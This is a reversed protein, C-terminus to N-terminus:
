NYGSLETTRYNNKFMKIFELFKQFLNTRNKRVTLGFCNYGYCM